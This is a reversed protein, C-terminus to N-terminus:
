RRSQAVRLVFLSVRCGTAAYGSEAGIENWLWRGPSPQSWVPPMRGSIQVQASFVRVLTRVQPGPAAALEGHVPPSCGPANYRILRLFTRNAPKRGGASFESERAM